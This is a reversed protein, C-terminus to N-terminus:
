ASGGKKINKFEFVANKATIECDVWSGGTSYCIARIFYKITLKYVNYFLRMRLLSDKIQEQM